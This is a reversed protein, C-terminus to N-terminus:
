EVGGAASLHVLRGGYILGSGAADKRDLRIERVDPSSDFQEFPGKGLSELIRDPDGMKDSRGKEDEVARRGTSQLAEVLFSELAKPIHVRAIEASDNMEAIWRGESEAVIGVAGQLKLNQLVSSMTKRTEREMKMFLAGLDSTPNEADSEALTEEVKDWITNQDSHRARGGSCRLNETVSRNLESFVRPSVKHEASKFSADFHSLRGMEVCSTPVEVTAGEDIIMNVNVVRNQAGGKVIEGALVLIKAEKSRNVFLLHDVTGTEKILLIGEELAEKVTKLQPRSEVPAQVKAIMPFVRSTEHLVPEGIRMGGIFDAVFRKVEKNSYHM